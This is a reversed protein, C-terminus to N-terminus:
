NPPKCARKKSPKRKQTHESHFPETSVARGYNAISASGGGALGAGFERPKKSVRRPNRPEAQVPGDIAARESNNIHSNPSHSRHIQRLVM